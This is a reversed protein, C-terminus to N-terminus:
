HLNLLFVKDFLVLHNVANLQEGSMLLVIAKGNVNVNKGIISIAMAISFVKESFNVNGNFNVFGDWFCNVNGNFNFLWLQYQNVFLQYQCQVEIVIPISMAMSKANQFLQYQYQWQCQVLFVIPISIAMSMSRPFFNTNLNGNVYYQYFQKAVM